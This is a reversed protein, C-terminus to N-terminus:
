SWEYQKIVAELPPCGEAEPSVDECPGRVRAAPKMWVEAALEWTRSVKV